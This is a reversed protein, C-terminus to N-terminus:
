EGTESYSGRPFRKSEDGAGPKLLEDGSGTPGKGSDVGLRFGKKPM